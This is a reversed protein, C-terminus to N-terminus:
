IDTENVNGEGSYDSMAHLAKEYLEEMRKTSQLAEKKAAALEAQAQLLQRRLKEDPSGAKLFYM